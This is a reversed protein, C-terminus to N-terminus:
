GWALLSLLAALAVEDEDVVVFRSESAASSSRPRYREHLRVITDRLWWLGVVRWRLSVVAHVHV